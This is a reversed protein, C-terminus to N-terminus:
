IHFSSYNHYSSSMSLPFSLHIIVSFLLVWPLVQMRKVMCCLYILKRNSGYYIVPFQLKGCSLNITECNRYTLLGIPEPRKKPDWFASIWTNATSSKKRSTRPFFRRGEKNLCKTSNLKKCNYSHSETEKCATLQPSKDAELHWRFEKNQLGREGDEFVTITPQIRRGNCRM